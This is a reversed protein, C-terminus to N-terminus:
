FILSSKAPFNAPFKGVSLRKKTRVKSDEEDEMDSIDFDIVHDECWFSPISPIEPLPPIVKRSKVPTGPSSRSSVSSDEDSLIEEALKKSGDKKIADSGRRQRALSRRRKDVIFTGEGETSKKESSKGTNSRTLPAPPAQPESVSNSKARSHPEKKKDTAMKGSARGLSKRWM